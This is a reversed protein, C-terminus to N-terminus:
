LNPDLVVKLPMEGPEQGGVLKLAREVEELPLRHTVLKELPYKGKRAIAIAPRVGLFDHSFVGLMRLEKFVAKDLPLSVDGKYIGPLVVTARKGALELAMRAGAESGSVDMVVRAMRGKTARGVVEFADEEEADITLHAELEKAMALRRKDRSLGVVIIPEAGCESAVVVGALGQQGPGIMVVCDGLSVGGLQRLWRM